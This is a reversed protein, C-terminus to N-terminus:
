LESEKFSIETKRVPTFVRGTVEYIKSDNNLTGGMEWIKIQNKAQELTKFENSSIVYKKDSVTSLLEVDYASFCTEGKEHHPNWGFGTDAVIDVVFELDRYDYLKGVIESVKDACMGRVMQGIYNKYNNKTIKIPKM